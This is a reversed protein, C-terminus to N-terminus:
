KSVVCYEERTSMGHMGYAGQLNHKTQFIKWNKMELLFDYARVRLREWTM